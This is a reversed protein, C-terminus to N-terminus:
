PGHSKYYAIQTSVQPHFIYKHITIESKISVLGNSCLTSLFKVNNDMFAVDLCSFYNNLIQTKGFLFFSEQRDVSFALGSGYFM